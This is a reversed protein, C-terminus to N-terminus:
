QLALASLTALAAAVSGLRACLTCSSRDRLLADNLQSTRM